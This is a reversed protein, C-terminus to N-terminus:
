IIEGRKLLEEILLKEIIEGSDGGGFTLGGSSYTKGYNLALNIAQGLGSIFEKDTLSSLPHIFVGWLTGQGIAYRADLASDYNAQLIRHMEEATLTESKRIPVIVRMRDANPDTVVQVPVGDILLRWLGPRGTFEPDLKQIIAQLRENTMKGPTEDRSQAQEPSLEQPEVRPLGGGTFLLLMIMVKRYM